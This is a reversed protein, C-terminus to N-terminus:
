LKVTIRWIIPLGHFPCFIPTKLAFKIIGAIRHASCSVSSISLFKSFTDNIEGGNNQGIQPEGVPNLFSLSESTINQVFESQLPLSRPLSLWATDRLASLISPNDSDVISFNILRPHNFEM